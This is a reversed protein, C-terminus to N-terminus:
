KGEVVLNQIEWQDAGQNNAGYKFAVQIKKGAFQSLDIKGSNSFTWKDAQPWTPITLDTWTTSGVERAAFGCLQRITTQFKAAHDFSATVSSKGSLDIEPSIAYSLVESLGSNFASVNLYHNGNYATWNWLTKGNAFTVNNDYTWGSITEDSAGLGSYITTADSSTNGGGAPAGGINVNDVCYTTSGNNGGAASYYRWGVYVVGSFSSLDVTGSEVWASYGSAPAAAISAELKTKTATKADNGDLVYVELISNEAQYAAQTRFTLTKSNSKNLDVPPAILWNEYPGGSASGLYASVTIYNQNDFTRVYWGSLGGTVEQNIWGQGTYSAIKDSGEFDEYLYPLAELPGDPEEQIGMDGWNYDSVSRVGYAGCYKSGTEGKICVLKHWNGPNDKLNLATRAAGSPLQVTACNEWNTELSDVAILLNTNVSCPKTDDFAACAASLTNSISVDVYGVIYGKVWPTPITDNVSGILAQYATMPNNWAGTGIGGEPVVIPPEAFDENCGAMVVSLALAVGYLIHKKM